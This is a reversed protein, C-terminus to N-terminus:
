IDFSRIIKAPCKQACLGCHDCKTYDITALNDNVKIAGNPCNKECIKCGLCGALCSKKTVAGKNHSVCSVTYLASEPVLEIIHKPCAGVCEGCGTCLNKDITAVGNNVIIADNKCVKACSGLGLCGYKCQMYGDILRSAATCDAIGQYQYKSHALEESGSCRVRAYKKQVTGGQVGLISAINDAAAQGAAGCCTTPANGEILADAYAACGAYGCGGCNAGPLCELIKAKREDEKVYFVKSALALLLGFIFGMIGLVGAASLIVKLLEPM